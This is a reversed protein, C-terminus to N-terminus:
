WRCRDGGVVELRAEVVISDVELNLFAHVSERLSTTQALKAKDRVERFMAVVLAGISGAKKLVFSEIDSETQNDVIEAHAVARLRVSIM